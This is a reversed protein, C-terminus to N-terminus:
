VESKVKVYDGNEDIIYELDEWTIPELINLNYVFYEIELRHKLNPFPINAYEIAIIHIIELFKM